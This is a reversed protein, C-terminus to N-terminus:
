ATKQSEKEVPKGDRVSRFINYVFVVQGLFMLIGGVGRVMSFPRLATMLEVFQIGYQKGDAWGFGQMVGQTWTSFAFLLFGIVSFWFHTEQLKKSYVERGAWDRVGYYILAFNIFTFGGFLPMHAHGVIWNTFKIVASPGMLSQFPGQLCTILYFLSGTLMFKLPVSDSVLQWKGKMTGFVNALVTWVPIILLISPITGAKMIWNPIPGNQLHHPGNWVYFTAITWFGILSLKHSYLPNKTLKPLLYYLFGVGVTTFWLGVINHGFFWAALAQPIGSIVGNPLNGVLYLLPFWILSGMFYWLSVYLQKEKRNAITRFCIFMVGAFLAFLVIDIPWLYEAYEIATTYGLMLTIVGVGNFVNWLHGAILALRPHQLPTRTLKPIVYFLGAVQATSLWGYLVMKTHVPRIRGYQLYKQLPGVVLFDPWVYKIALILGFTMGLLLWVFSSYYLYRVARYSTDQNTTM